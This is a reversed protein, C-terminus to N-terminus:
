KQGHKIEALIDRGGKRLAEAALNKGLAVAQGLPANKSLCVAKKGDLSIIMTSLNLQRGKIRAFAAVPMRCGAGTAELFARESAVCFCTRAHNIKQAMAQMLKDNNRVELGLAGQGCSPLMIKLSLPRTKIKQYRLRRLGAAAVVIADYRGEQLKRIRTDLNGRLDEIRLDPRLRLLQARRRLSSTGIVANARLELLSRNGKSILVDRPDERRTVAALKLRGPIRSPLDKMSHVALDITGAILQDEIEKVFIGKDSRQWEKVRDGLTTIKKLRFIHRPFKRKLFRIVSETQAVSLKSGRAGIFIQRKKV